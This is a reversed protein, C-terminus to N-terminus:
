GGQQADFWEAEARGLETSPPADGYFEQTIRHWNARAGLQALVAFLGLELRYLMIGWRPVNLQRVLGWWENTPDIMTATRQAIYERTFTYEADEHIPALSMLMWEFFHDPDIADPLRIYGMAVGEEFFTAADNNWFARFGAHLHPRMPDALEFSLGFDFFAMRGDDQLLYNGPHPDASTFGYRHLSGYYFRFLIEGIRNREDQPLHRFVAFPRGAAREMTLVRKTSRDPISRPVWAFPHGSFHSALLDLSRAEEIYDCERLVRERIEAMAANAELGPALLPILPRVTSTLALDSRIAREIGPYQVKVAVPRGDALTAHHVQGLSAAAAPERDFTGFLDEPRSEFEKLFVQDILRPDMPPAADRLSGLVSQYVDRIEPPLVGADIFSALQGVKMSAGKLRGLIEVLEQATNAHLDAFLKQPSDKGLLTRPGILAARLSGKLAGMGLRSARGLMSGPVASRQRRSAPRPGADGAPQEDDTDDIDQSM